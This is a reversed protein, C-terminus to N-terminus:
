RSGPGARTTSANVLLQLLDDEDDFPDSREVDHDHDVVIV